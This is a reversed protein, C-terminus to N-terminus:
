LLYIYIYIYIYLASPGTKVWAITSSWLFPHNWSCRRTIIQINGIKPTPWKWYDQMFVGYIYISHYKKYLIVSCKCAAITVYRSVDWRKETWGRWQNDLWPLTRLINLEGLFHRRPVLSMSAAGHFFIYESWVKSDFWCPCYMYRPSLTLSCYSWSNSRSNSWDQVLGVIRVGIFINQCTELVQLYKLFM